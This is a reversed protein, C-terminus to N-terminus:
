DNSTSAGVICASLELLHDLKAVPLRGSRTTEFESVRSNQARQGSPNAINRALFQGTRREHYREM